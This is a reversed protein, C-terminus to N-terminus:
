PRRPSPTRAEEGSLLHLLEPHGAQIAARRAADGAPGRIAAGHRLLERVIVQNGRACAMSLPTQGNSTTANPNAGRDLLLRVTGAADYCAAILPTAGYKDSAEIDAGAALLARVVALHNRRAALHLATEGGGLPRVDVNAGAKLLWRTGDLDGYGAAIMLAPHCNPPCQNVDAGQAILSLAQQRGQRAEPDLSDTDWRGLAGNLSRRLALRRAELSRRYRVFGFAAVVTVVLLAAMAAILRRTAM